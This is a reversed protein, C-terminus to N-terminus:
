NSTLPSLYPYCLSLSTYLKVSFKEQIVNRKVVNFTVYRDSVLILKM